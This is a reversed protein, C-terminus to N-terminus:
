KATGPPSYVALHFVNNFEHHAIAHQNLTRLMELQATSLVGGSANMVKNWNIEEPEALHGSPYRSAANALVATLQSAQAETLADPSAALDGALRLAITQVPLEREYDELAALGSSGLLAAADSQFAQDNQQLLATAAPDQSAQGSTALTNALVLSPLQSPDPNGGWNLAEAVAPSAAAIDLLHAERQTILNELQAAQEAGLGRARFFPGFMAPLNGKIMQVFEAALKPNKLLTTEVSRSNVSHTRSQDNPKKPSAPEAPKAQVQLGRLQAIRREWETRSHALRNQQVVLAARQAEKARALRALNTWASGVVIVLLFAVTGIWQRSRM